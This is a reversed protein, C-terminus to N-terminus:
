NIKNWYEDPISSLFTLQFLRKSLLRSRCDTLINGVKSFLRESPVSSALVCCYKMAVQSLGPFSSSEEMDHEGWLSHTNQLTTVNIVPDESVPENAIKKIQDQVESVANAEDTSCKIDYMKKSLM